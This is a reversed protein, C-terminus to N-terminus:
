PCFEAGSALVTDTTATSASGTTGSPQAAGIGAGGGNSNISTLSPANGACYKIVGNGGGGGGGGSGNTNGNKGDGGSLELQINNMLSPNESLVVTHGGGGGGPGSGGGAGPGGPNGKNNILLVGSGKMRRANVLVIGGGNGGNDTGFGGGGGGGFFLCPPTACALSTALAGSGVNGGGDGGNGANPGLNSGGGGGKTGAGEAGGAGNLVSASSNSRFKGVNVGATNTGGQLGGAFGKGTADLILNFTNQNLLHSVKFAVVGGTVATFSQAIASLTSPGTITLNRFNPVRVLMVKCIAGSVTNGNAMVAGQVGSTVINRDVVVTTGDPINTVRAFKHFGRYLQGGAQCSTDLDAAVVLVLVEDGALIGTSDAVTLNKFNGAVNTIGTVRTQQSFKRGFLTANDMDFSSNITHDGDSGNGWVSEQYTYAGTGTGTLANGVNTLVVDVATGFTPRQPTTCIASTTSSVSPNTCAQGDVTITVGSVTDFGTGQVEITEFGAFSGTNPVVSSITVPTTAIFHELFIETQSGNALVTTNPPFNALGRKFFFEKKNGSCNNNEFSTIGIAIPSNPTEGVPVALNMDTISNPAATAVICSSTSFGKINPQGLPSPEVTFLSVKYSASGGRNANNCNSGATPSGLNRCSILRLTNTVGGNRFGPAGFIGQNCNATKLTLELNFTVNNLSAFKVDCKVNGAFKNAGDWGIALFEWDGNPLVMEVEQQNPGVSAVFQTGKNFAYIQLANLGNLAQVSLFSFKVVAQNEKSKGCSLLIALLFLNWFKCM